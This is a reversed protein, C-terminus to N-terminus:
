GTRCEGRATCDRADGSVLVIEEPLGYGREHVQRPIAYRKLESWNWRSPIHPSGCSCYLMWEEALGEVTPRLFSGNRYPSCGLVYRTHCKPCEVCHRVRSRMAYSLAISNRVLREDEPTVGATGVIAFHIAESHVSASKFAALQVNASTTVGRLSQGHIATRFRGPCRVNHAIIQASLPLFESHLFSDRDAPM